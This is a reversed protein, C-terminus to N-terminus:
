LEPGRQEKMGDTAFGTWVRGERKCPWKMGVGEGEKVIM